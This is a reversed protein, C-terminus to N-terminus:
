LYKELFAAVRQVYTERDAFYAGCHDVSPLAWMEKPDGAAEYLAQSDRPDTLDDHEGHILMLARPSITSVERLPEVEEIDYPLFREMLGALPMAVAGARRRLYNRVVARQSAFPSDAVVASIRPDRAAALIAVVAGMSYGVVGIRAEPDRSRVFDVAALADLTELYGLTNISPDSGGRGRFDFLLVNMGRRRLASSIGITDSRGGHRGTLTIISRTAGSHSLWWGRLTLGDSTQFAVDEYPIGLEWPTIFKPYVPRPAVMRRAMSWAGLALVGAGAAAGAPLAILTRPSSRNM